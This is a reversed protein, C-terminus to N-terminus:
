YKMMAEATAQRNNAQRHEKDKQDALEAQKYKIMAQQEAEMQQLLVNINQLQANSAQNLKLAMGTATASSSLGGILDQLNTFSTSANVNFDNLMSKVTSNVQDVAGNPNKSFDQLNKLASIQQQVDQAKHIADVLKQLNAIADAHVESLQYTMGMDTTSTVPAIAFISVNFAM